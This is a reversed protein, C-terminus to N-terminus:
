ATKPIHKTAFGKADSFRGKLHRKVRIFEAKLRKGRYGAQRLYVFTSVAELDATAKDNLKKAFRELAPNQLGATRGGATEDAGSDPRLRYVYTDGEKKEEVIRAACLLDLQSALRSSFPGFYHLVFGQQFEVFGKSKLLHVIKQLRKRGRVEELTRVLEGVALTSDIDM